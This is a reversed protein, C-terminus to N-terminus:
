QLEGPQRDFYGQGGTPKFFTKIIGDKGYSGFTNTAPDYIRTTGNGDIKTPLSDGKARGYFDSALKEYESSSEAGFDAGHKEFHNSIALWDVNAKLLDALM